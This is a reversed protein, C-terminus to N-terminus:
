ISALPVAFSASDPLSLALATSFWSWAWPMVTRGVVGQCVTLDVEGARRSLDTRSAFRTLTGAGLYECWATSRDVVLRGFSRSEPVAVLRAFSRSEPVPPGGMM